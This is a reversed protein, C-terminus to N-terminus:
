EEAAPKTKKLEEMMLVKYQPPEVVNKSGPEGCLCLEEKLAELDMNQEICLVTLFEEFEDFTISWKRLILALSQNYCKTHFDANIYYYFYKLINNGYFDFICRAELKAFKDGCAAM